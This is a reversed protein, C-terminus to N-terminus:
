QQYLVSSLTAVSCVRLRYVYDSTTFQQNYQFSLYKHLGTALMECCTHGQRTSHVVVAPENKVTKM